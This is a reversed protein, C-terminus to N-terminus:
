PRQTGENEPTSASEMHKEVFCVARDFADDAQRRVLPAPWFGDFGHFMEPYTALEHEVGADKLRAAMIRSQECPVDTDKEGHVLLTPPYDATVNGVPCYPAFAAPDTRPDVGMVERPWIGQQRCYTYFKTRPLLMKEPPTTLPTVGVVARAEEETILKDGISRYYADPETYWKGLIDGYGYFSVIARPRPSVAYGSVLALYGGASSGVAAIRSPDAGFLAPGETACGASPTACM